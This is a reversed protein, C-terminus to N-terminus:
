KKGEEKEKKFRQFEILCKCKKVLDQHYPNKILIFGTGNCEECGIEPEPPDKDFLRYQKISRGASM